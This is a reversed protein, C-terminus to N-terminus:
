NFYEEMNSYSSVKVLYELSILAMVGESVKRLTQENDYALCVCLKADSASLYRVTNIYGSGCQKVITGCQVDYLMLMILLLLMVTTTGVSILSRIM